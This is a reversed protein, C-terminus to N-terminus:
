IRQFCGMLEALRQPETAMKTCLAHQLNKLHAVARQALLLQQKTEKEAMLQAKLWEVSTGKQELHSLLTIYCSKDGKTFMFTILPSLSYKMSHNVQHAINPCINDLSSHSGKREKEELWQKRKFLIAVIDWPQFQPKIVQM